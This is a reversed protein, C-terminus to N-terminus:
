PKIASSLHSAPTGFWYDLVHTRKLFLHADCADTMGVGGHIQINVRCSNLAAFSALVKAASAYFLAEDDREDVALCSFYLQSLAVESHLAVDVCLHRVAQFAGIPQGFQTRIKAYEVAADRAAEAIGTQLAATLVTGRANLPFKDDHLVAVAAAGDISSVAMSVDSDLCPISKPQRFESIPVVAAEQRGIVLIHCAHDFGFLRYRGSVRGGVNLFETGEQFAIGIIANGEMIQTALAADGSRAAVEAGLMTSVLEVPALHRGFERCVLTQEVLTYGVGGLSEPVCMGFWGQQALSKWVAQRSIQTSPSRNHLRSLPVESSLVAGTAAIIHEQEATPLLNM